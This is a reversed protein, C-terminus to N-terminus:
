PVDKRTLALAATEGACSPRVPSAARLEARAAALDAQFVPDQRFRELVPAALAQGAAIDSAFHVNCVRRSDGFARGRALLAARRAPILDALILAWGYGITAHGSPYSGNGRLAQEMEPTCIPRGNGAFPRQRAYHDKAAGSVRGLDSMTARLLSDVRPTAAPSIERGAACSFAGTASASWLDADARALAWRSGGQLALAAAELQRDRRLAESGEAPPSAILAMADPWRAPGLYSRAGLTAVPAPPAATVVATGGAPPDAALAGARGFEGIGFGAIGFGVLAVVVAATRMSRGM